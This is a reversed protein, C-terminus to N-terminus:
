AEYVELIEWGPHSQRFKARAEAESKASISVVTTSGSPIRCQVKFHKM